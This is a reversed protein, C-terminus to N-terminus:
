GEISDAALGALANLGAVGIEGSLRGLNNNEGDLVAYMPTGRLGYATAVNDAQDDMIVPVTWSEEELWDQPPWNTLSRDTLTTVSYIDVGDPLGGSDVWDQVVPVEAQCHPCWHALFLVIKPRGDAEITYQNDNWDSGTVTPAELGIAPDGGEDSMIPLSDGEVTVEGYAISDDIQPESAISAAMWVILALGLVGGVAWLITQSSIGGEGASKKKNAQTSKTM